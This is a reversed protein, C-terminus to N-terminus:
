GEYGERDGVGGERRLRVRVRMGMWKVKGVM